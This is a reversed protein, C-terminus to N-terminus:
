WHCALALALAKEVIPEEAQVLRGNSNCERGHTRDLEEVFERLVKIKAQAQASYNGKLPVTYFGYISLNISHVCTSCILSNGNVASLPM